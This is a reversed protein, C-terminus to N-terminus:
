TPRGTPRITREARARLERAIEIPKADRLVLQAAELLVEHLASRIESEIIEVGLDKQGRSVLGAMRYWVSTAREKPEM